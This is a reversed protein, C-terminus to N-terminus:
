PRWGPIPKRVGRVVFRISLVPATPPVAVAEEGVPVTEPFLRVTIPSEVPEAVISQSIPVLTLELGCDSGVVRVRVPDGKASEVGALIKMIGPKRLEGFSGKGNERAKECPFTIIGEKGKGPSTIGKLAVDIWAGGDSSQSAQSAAMMTPQTSPPLESLVMEPWANGLNVPASPDVGVVLAEAGLIKVRGTTEEPSGVVPTVMVTFGGAGQSFTVMLSVVVGKVANRM